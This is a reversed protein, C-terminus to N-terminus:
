RRGRVGLVVIGGCLTLGALVLMLADFDAPTALLWALLPGALAPLTNTLNLLGLDRGRHRPDPLLQMSLAASLSSFVTSGVVYLGFGAAGTTWDDAFAMGVLGLAAVASGALLFPKRRDIGDSLRGVLIAIPLPLLFAITQLNGVRPALDGPTAAPSLSEFYYFLYLFLVNGATQVLLRACWAVALDRRLTTVAPPAEESIPVLRSRTMLLPAVCAGIAAAVIALRSAEGLVTMGVLLATLASGVPNAFALMGGAVGKQADPIEDAMIGLLPALMANVAVQFLMVAGIIAGPSAAAAIGAYSLATAAVGGALWARRGGGRAVARDNLWGWLINAGSAAAAGAIVTATFLGIRAEGAVAEIKLPLLLTLLPLYGLVGGANALAYVLLFAPSRHEPAPDATSIRSRASLSRAFWSPM